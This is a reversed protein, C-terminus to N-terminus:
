GGGGLLWWDAGDADLRRRRGSRGLEGAVENREGADVDHWEAPLAPLHPDLLARVVFEIGDEM